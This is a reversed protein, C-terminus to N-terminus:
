TIAQFDQVNQNREEISQEGHVVCDIDSEDAITKLTENYNM